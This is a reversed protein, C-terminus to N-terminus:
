YVGGESEAAKRWAVRYKELTGEVNKLRNELLNRQQREKELEGRLKILENEFVKKAGARQYAGSRRIYTKLEKSNFSWGFREGILNMNGEYVKSYYTASSHRLAHPSIKQNLVRKATNKITKNLANYSMSFILDDDKLAQFYASNVFTKIEEIFLPIPVKRTMTKSSNCNIWFCKKNEEFDEWLLDKKRVSLLEGIRFGSDFLLLVMIRYEIKRFGKALKLVEDYSLIPKEKPQDDKSIRTKIWSVQKPYSENEGLLWKYFQKLFKKIDSKSSGSYPRGKETIFKDRHLKTVFNEVNERTVNELPKKLGRNIIKLMGKLKNIRKQTVGENLLHNEYKKWLKEKM